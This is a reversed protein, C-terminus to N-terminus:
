KQLAPRQPACIKGFLDRFVPSVRTQLHGSFIECKHIKKPGGWFCFTLIEGTPAQKKGFLARFRSSFHCKQHWTPGKYSKNESDGSIGIFITNQLPHSKSAFGKLRLKSSHKTETKTVEQGPGDGLGRFFMLIEGAPLVKQSFIHGFGALFTCNKTLNAKREPTWGRLKGM